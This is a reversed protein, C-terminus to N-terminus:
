YSRSLSSAVAQARSAAGSPSAGDCQVSVGDATGVTPGAGAPASDAALAGTNWMRVAPTEGNQSEAFFAVLDRQAPDLPSGLRLPAAIRFRAVGASDLTPTITGVLLDRTASTDFKPDMTLWMWGFQRESVGTPQFRLVTTFFAGSLPDNEAYETVTAGASQHEAQKTLAAASAMAEGAAHDTWLVSRCGGDPLVVASTAERRSDYGSPLTASIVSADTLFGTTITPM